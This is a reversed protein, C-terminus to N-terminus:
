AGHYLELDRKATYCSSIGQLLRASVIIPMEIEAFAFPSIVKSIVVGGIVQEVEAIPATLWTSSTRRTKCGTTNGM